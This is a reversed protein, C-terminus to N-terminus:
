ILNRSKKILSDLLSMAIVSVGIMELGEEISVQYFIYKSEHNFAEIFEMCFGLSLFVVGVIAMRNLKIKYRLRWFILFILALFPLYIITWSFRGEWFADFAIYSAIREHFQFWDDLGFYFVILGTIIIWANYKFKRSKIILLCGVVLTKISQYFTPLNNESALNFFDINKAYVSSLVILVFDVILFFYIWM